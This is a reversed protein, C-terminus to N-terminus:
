TELRTIAQGALLQGLLHAFDFDPAAETAREFATGITEGAQVAEIFAAAGAGLLLPEPDFAARLILVDEAQMVPKPAGDEMNFRWIAHIPWPSRVLRVAPALHFRAATLDEPPLAAIEEPAVPTADAAHYAERLAQELRAVDPLYGIQKLPAFAELFGPLAAGYLMLVPSAPPHARVFTGALKDFTEGGLLKRIVPFAVELAESLSIIVNNRYVDFRKTAPTGDPNSLGAPVPRDPMLVSAAFDDQAVTM